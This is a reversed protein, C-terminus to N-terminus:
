PRGAATWVEHAERTRAWLARLADDPIDDVHLGVADTLAARWDPWETVDEATVRQATTRGLLCGRLTDIGGDRHRQVVIVKRFPSDPATSLRLHAEDVDAPKSTVVIGTFTGAPDHDFTWAAPGQPRGSAQAGYGAGLGYRFGDVRHEGRVLAIPEAFGDGLGVDVWWHGGPNEQTVLGSVVLVLHNLSPDLQMERNTWVHGHRRSVAYGLSTLLLEFAGNQHFCYGARGVAAIRVVTAAPDTSPPTGLQIGLNEYPIRQLHARHLARLTDLTAAPPEDYGLLRLYAALASM